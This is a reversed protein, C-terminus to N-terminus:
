SSSSPPPSAGAPPSDEDWPPIRELARNSEMSVSDFCVLSDMLAMPNSVIVSTWALVMGKSRLPFSTRAAALVPEPFVSANRTGQASSRCWALNRGRFPAPTIMMEGVLSSARWVYPTHSSSMDPWWECVKPRTIPPDLLFVSASFSALPTFKSTHVGPLSSSWRCFVGLKLKLFRWARTMSSASLIRSMPKSSSIFCIMLSKGLSLCVQRKEAVCVFLTLSKALSEKLFDGM